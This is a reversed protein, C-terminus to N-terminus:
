RGLLEVGPRWPLHRGGHPQHENVHGRMELASRGPLPDGFYHQEVTEVVSFARDREDIANQPPRDTLTVHGGFRPTYKRRHRRAYTM